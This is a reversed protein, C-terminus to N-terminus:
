GKWVSKGGRSIFSNAKEKLAYVTENNELTVDSLTSLGRESEHDGDSGNLGPGRIIEIIAGGLKRM